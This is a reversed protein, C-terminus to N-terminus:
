NLCFLVDERFTSIIAIFTIGSAAIPEIGTAGTTSAVRRMSGTMSRLTQTALSDRKENARSLTPGNDPRNFDGLSMRLDVLSSIPAFRRRGRHHAVVRLAAAGTRGTLNRFKNPM